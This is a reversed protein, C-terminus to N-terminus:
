DQFFSCKPGGSLVCCGPECASEAYNFYLFQEDPSIALGEICRNVARRTLIAPLIGRVEYHAGEFETETGKPVYRAIMRGDAGFHTVSPGNEEAIWFTGDSLKVLGEPDFGNL